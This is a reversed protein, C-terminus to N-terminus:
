IEDMMQRAEAQQEENGSHLVEELMSRCAEKDGLALYARALDLKIEPDDDVAAQEEGAEGPEEEAGEEPEGEAEEAALGTAAAVVAV